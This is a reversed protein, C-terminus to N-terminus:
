YGKVLLTENFPFYEWSHASIKFKYPWFWLHYITTIPYFSCFLDESVKYNTGCNEFDFLINALM